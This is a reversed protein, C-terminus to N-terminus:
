CEGTTTQAVVTFKDVTPTVSYDHPSPQHIIATPGNNKGARYTEM